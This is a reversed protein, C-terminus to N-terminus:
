HGWDRWNAQEWEERAYEALLKKRHRRVALFAAIALIVFTALGISRALQMIRPSIIAGTTEKLWKDEFQLPTLGTVEHMAQEFSGTRGTEHILRALSREGYTKVFYSVASTGEAYALGQRQGSPFGTALDTLPILTGQSAADAFTTQDVDDWDDTLYKATGENVWLPLAGTRNGLIRFIVIHVIEHGAIQNTPALYGSAEIEISGDSSAQGVIDGPRRLGTAKTFDLQDHYLAVRIKEVSPSKLDLKNSIETLWDECVMGTVHATSDMGTPYHIIFHKTTTLGPLRISQAHAAVIGGIILLAILIVRLIKM